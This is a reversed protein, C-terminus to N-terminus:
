SKCSSIPALAPAVGSSASSARGQAARWSQDPLIKRTCNSDNWIRMAKGSRRVVKLLDSQQISSHLWLLTKLWRSTWYHLRHILVCVLRPVRCCEQCTFCTLPGEARFSKLNMLLWAFDPINELISARYLWVFQLIIDESQLFFPLNSSLSHNWLLLLLLCLASLWLEFRSEFWLSVETCSLWCQFLISVEQCLWFNIELDMILLSANEINSLFLTLAVWLWLKSHIVLRLGSSDTFYM